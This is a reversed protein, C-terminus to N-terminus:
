SSWRRGDRNGKKRARKRGSSADEERVEETQLLRVAVRRLIDTTARKLGRVKQRADWQGALSRAAKQNACPALRRGADLVSDREAIQPVQSEVAELVASLPPSKLGVVGDARTLLRERPTCGVLRLRHPLLLM